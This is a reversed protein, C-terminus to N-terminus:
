SVHLNYYLVEKISYRLESDALKVCVSWKLDCDLYIQLKTLWLIEKTEYHISFGKNNLERFLNYVDSRNKISINSYVKNSLFRIAIGILDGKYDPGNLSTGKAYYINGGIPVSSANPFEVALERIREILDEADFM